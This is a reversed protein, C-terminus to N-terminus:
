LLGYNRLIQGIALLAALVLVLGTKIFEPVKKEKTANVLENIGFVFVMMLLYYTIQLHNARLQLALFM